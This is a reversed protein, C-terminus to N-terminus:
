HSGDMRTTTHKTEASSPLASLSYQRLHIHVHHEHRSRLVTAQQRMWCASSNATVRCNLLLDTATAEVLAFAFELRSDRSARVDVTILTLPLHHSRQAGAHASTTLLFRSDYDRSVSM